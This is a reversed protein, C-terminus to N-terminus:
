ELGHHEGRALQREGQQRYVLRRADPVKDIQLERDLHVVLARGAPTIVADFSNKLRSTLWRVVEDAAGSTAQAMAFGSRSGTVMSTVAGSQLNNAVTRQADAYAQAAVDLGRLMAIDALYAPANTVFTGAICPNGYEDSIFGLDDGSGFNEANVVGTSGRKRQSVTRVTGDNFVFTMSRVRGESCSLAMDGIAIGTVIMGALDAPLEFGNAALNDRGVIAKFQMPDTVRGDVPVRGILSTM